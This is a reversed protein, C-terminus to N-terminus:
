ATASRERTDTTELGTFEFRAGGTESEGADVTWGHATAIGRVISLGFGTGDANTSYGDEFVDEDEPLGRGDDAVYFGMAGAGNTSDIAGVEVTLDADDGDPVGHEVADQRVQSDPSTSGHEVANRFLNELLRTVRDPDALATLDSAVRLTADGTDVTEWATEALHALSVPEPDTVDTGHRALALVDDVIAEMRDISEDIEDLYPEPDDAERALELYGDAVNLPNRLDHSVVNAFRDLRENQRELQLENHKRDTIDRVIVLWGVHRDRDDDIPTVTVDYYTGDVELERHDSEVTATLDRYSELLGPADAFLSDVPKGIPSADYASLLSRGVPNADIVRDREDVVFIGDSVTDVVRDRAVPVIDTLRYRIIAIAYLVGTVVFGIPSTDFDVFGAVFVGNAVWAVLTGVLLAASQGRYLSRSRLLFDVIMATVVGLVLYSYVLHPWFLVGTEAGTETVRFFLGSPNVAALVGILIPEVSLAALTWSTVYRERGTYTLTFVLLTMTAFGVGLFLLGTLLSVFVPRGVLGLGVLSATWLGASLVNGLLPLAGTRDRHRWLLAALAASFCTSAVYVFWIPGVSSVM